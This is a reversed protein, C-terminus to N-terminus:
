SIYRRLFSPTWSAKSLDTAVKDFENIKTLVAQKLDKIGGVPFVRNFVLNEVTHSETVAAM